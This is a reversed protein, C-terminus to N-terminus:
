SSNKQLDNSVTTIRLMDNVDYYIIPSNKNYPLIHMCMIFTSNGKVLHSDVIVIYYHSTNINNRNNRNYNAVNLVDDTRSENLLDTPPEPVQRNKNKPGDYKIEKKGNKIIHKTINNFEKENEDLIANFRFSQSDQSIETIKNDYKNKYYKIYDNMSKIKQKNNNNYNIFISMSDNDFIYAYLEYPVNTGKMKYYQTNFTFQNDTKTETKTISKFCNSNATSDDHILCIYAYKKKHNILLTNIQTDNHVFIKDPTANTQTQSTNDTLILTEQIHWPVNFFRTVDKKLVGFSDGNRIFIDNANTNKLINDKNFRINKDLLETNIKKEDTLIAYHAYSPNFIDLAAVSSSLVREKKDNAGGLKEQLQLYKTKYKMYKDYYLSDDGM